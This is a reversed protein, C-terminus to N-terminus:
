DDENDNQVESVRRKSDELLDNYIKVAKRKVFSRKIKYYHLDQDDVRIVYMLLDGLAIQHNRILMTSSAILQINAQHHPSNTLKHLSRRMYGDSNDFYNAFGCKIELLVIQGEDTVCVADFSTGIGTEEDFVDFEARLLHWGMTDLIFTLIRKTYIHIGPRKRLFNRLFNTKDEHMFLIFDEMEQHVLTGRIRGWHRGKAHVALHPDPPRQAIQNQQPQPKKKKSKRKKGKTIKSQETHGPTTKMLSYFGSDPFFTRRLRRNIGSLLVYKGHMNIYYYAGKTNLIRENREHEVLRRVADGKKGLMRLIKTDHAKWMQRSYTNRQAVQPLMTHTHTRRIGLPM